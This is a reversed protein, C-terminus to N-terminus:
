TVVQSPMWRQASGQTDGCVSVQLHADDGASSGGTVDLCLNSAVNRIWYGDPRPDLWWQQNDRNTGDCYYETVKTGPSVSGYYPLDFCFGDQRNQIVFLSAGGPGGDSDTVKMDWLQNDATTPRCIYQNVPGDKTGKGFDPIDACKGTAKNEMLVNARHSLANALQRGTPAAAKKVATEAKKTAKPTSKPQSYAQPAARVETAAAGSGSSVSKTPSPSASRTPSPSTSPSPSDAQYDAAPGRDSTGPELTTGGISATNVTREADDRVLGIVLFPVSILVAGAIAAAALMPGRPRGSADTAADPDDPGDGNGAFHVGVAADSGPGDSAAAQSQRQEGPLQQSPQGPEVSVPEAAGSRARWGTFRRPASEASPPAPVVPEASSPIPVVPESFSPMGAVPEVFTPMRVVPEVFTPMPESAAHERDPTRPGLDADPEAGPPPVAVARRVSVSPPTEDGPPEHQRPM